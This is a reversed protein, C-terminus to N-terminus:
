LDVTQTPFDQLWNLADYHTFTDLLHHQYETTYVELKPRSRPASEYRRFVEAAIADSTDIISIKNGCVQNIQEKVLPYHTCGLVIQDVGQAVLPQCYKELLVPLQETQHEIADALGACGQSIINVDPVFREILNLYRVSAVTNETALIGIKQSVSNLAAPKIGPEVGVIPLDINERLVDIAVATATNCAVVVLSCGQDILWRTILLSRDIICQATLNGYPAYAQDAIYVLSVDPLRQKIASLVTFGGVGSDFVGIM